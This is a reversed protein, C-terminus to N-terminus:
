LEIVRLIADLEHIEGDSDTIRSLLVYDEGSTGDAAFVKVYPDDTVQGSLTLATSGTILNAKTSSITTASSITKSGTLRETFDFAIIRKEAPQKTVVTTM